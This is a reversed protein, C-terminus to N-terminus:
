IFIVVVLDRANSGLEEILELGKVAVALAFAQKQLCRGPEVVDSLDNVKVVM